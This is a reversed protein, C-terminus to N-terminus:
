RVAWLDSGLYVLDMAGYDSEILASTQGDITQSGARNVTLNYTAANSPAKVSVVDGADPSAPLTWIRAATFAASSFNMGEVLTAAADGQDTPTPSADSSLVGNTATLGAGAMASVLDVISEKKTKNSDDADILAISDNAVNVAAAALDNLDVELRGATSALGENSGGALAAAYDALSTAKIANGDADDILMTDATLDVTASGLSDAVLTSKIEVAGTVNLAGDCDVQGQLNSTSKATFAVNAIVGDVDAAFIDVDSSNGIILQGDALWASGSASSSVFLSLYGDNDSRDSVWGLETQDELEGGAGAFILRGSTLDSVKATSFTAAASSAAGIIVGDLSGGNIDVTTLIGADAVTRGANTWDSAMSAIGLANIGSVDKSADLVVAKSAEATGIAAVDVYNLEAATSSVLVGGLKLGNTGDHAAIDFDYAGDKVTIDGSAALTVLDAVSDPGLTSGDDMSISAVSALGSLALTSGGAIAGVASIGQSNFDAGGWLMASSNLCNLTGGVNVDSSASVIGAQSFNAVKTGAENHVSIAGEQVLAGSLQAQGFQFKYAM